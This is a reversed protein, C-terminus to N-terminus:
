FGKMMRWLKVLPEWFALAAAPLGFFWMAWWKAQRRFWRATKYDQVIEALTVSERLIEHLADLDAQSWQEPGRRPQYPPENDGPRPPTM